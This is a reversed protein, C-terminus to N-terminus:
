EGRLVESPRVRLARANALVGVVASLGATLAVAALLVPVDTHWGLRMLRTVVVYSFGLAGSAGLVGSLLGILGYEIAFLGVVGARTTGLTKLLAVKRGQRAADAAVGSVLIAIGALATFAGVARIGWGMRELLGRAQILAARVSVLTVNPFASALTDQVGAERDAALQATVLLSQPAQELVGPEAVLFFNMDFSEWSVTRLSSVIFEVPVGQVDFRLRSGVTAGLSEAYRQELSLEAPAADSVPVAASFAAGAVIVNDPPLAAMYSLRQERTLSWREDEGREAVLAEVGRGDIALLRGVVMPASKVRTAGAKELIAVVGDRQDPQVDVLFASPAAAPFEDEIQAFIRGEVLVTTLVVVVGIALSVAAPVFGSGPRGLSALGHRLWWTRVRHAYRGLGRALVTASLAGVGAVAGLGGVFAAAVLPDRSQVWALGYIGGGLALAGLAARLPPDPLPEVDRRLVRLPPVRAAQDLPRAAFLLAIGVGLAVGRAIAVPQWPQVAGVPLLGELVYPAASLAAVGLAAGAVSGVAALVATQTLALTRIEGTTMGLCRQVALADLRRAMWARTSQAVGVGGVVLSLLAVLGLYSSTREISRQTSPQADSWTEIRTWTADAADEKLWTALAGARAEDPVRFLARYTNRAGSEGLGARALGDLSLLIRPGAALGSPLRGPEATIVGRVTFSAGGVRVEAGPALGLRELLTPEVVVGAPDLLDALPRAPDLTPAGYFPWGPSVAKLEAMVSRGPAGDAGAPAAVMTLFDVTDARQVDPFAAAVGDFSAPIPRSSRATVDAGLLPRAEMRIARSLSDGLGAVLVVAAVGIALSALFPLLRARAGRVERGILRIMLRLTV